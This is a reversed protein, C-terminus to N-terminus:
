SEIYGDRVFAEEWTVDDGDKVLIIAKRPDMDWHDFRYLKPAFLAIDRARDDNDVISSGSPDKFLSVGHFVELEPLL